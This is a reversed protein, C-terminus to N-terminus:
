RSGASNAGGASPPREDGFQGGDALVDKSFRWQRGVQLGPFTGANAWFLVRAPTVGVVRAVQEATLVPPLAEWEAATVPKDDSM